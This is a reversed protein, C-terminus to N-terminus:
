SFAKCPQSPSLMSTATLAASVPTHYAPIKHHLGLRLATGRLTSLLFSSLDKAPQKRITELFLSRNHPDEQQWILRLINCINDSRDGGLSHGGAPTRLMLHKTLANFTPFVAGCVKSGGGGSGKGMPCTILLRCGVAMHFVRWHDRVSLEVFESKLPHILTRTIDPDPTCDPHVCHAKGSRIDKQLDWYRKMLARDEEATWTRYPLGALERSPVWSASESEKSM